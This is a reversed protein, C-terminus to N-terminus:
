PIFNSGRPGQVIKSHMLSLWFYWSSILCLGMINCTSISADVCQSRPNMKSASEGDCNLSLLFKIKIKDTAKVMPLTFLKLWFGFNIHSYAMSINEYQFQIQVDGPCWCGHYQNDTQSIYYIYLLNISPITAWAISIDYYWNIDPAGKVLM